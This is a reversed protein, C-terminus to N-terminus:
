LHSFLLIRLSELTKRGRAGRDRLSHELGNWVEESKTRLKLVYVIEALIPIICMM